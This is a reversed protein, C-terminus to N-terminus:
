HSRRRFHLLFAAAALVLSLGLGPLWIQSLQPLWYRRPPMNPVYRRYYDVQAALFTGAIAVLAGAALPRVLAATRRPAAAPRPSAPRAPM